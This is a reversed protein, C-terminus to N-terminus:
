GHDNGKEHKAQAERLWRIMPDAVFDIAAAWDEPDMDKILKMIVVSEPSDVAKRWATAFGEALWSRIDSDTIGYAGTVPDAEERMRHLDACLELTDAPSSYGREALRQARALTGEAM